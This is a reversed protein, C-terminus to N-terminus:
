GMVVAGARRSDQALALPGQLADPGWLPLTQGLTELVAHCPQNLTSQRGLADGGGEGPEM